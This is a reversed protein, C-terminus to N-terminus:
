YLNVKKEKKWRYLSSIIQVFIGGRHWQYCNVLEANDLMVVFIFIANGHM